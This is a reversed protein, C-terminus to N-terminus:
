QVESEAVSANWAVEVRSYKGTGSDTVIHFFRNSKWFLKQTIPQIGPKVKLIDLSTFKSTTGPKFRISLRQVIHAANRTEYTFNALKTTQDGFSSATYDKRLSDSMIDPEMFEKALQRFADRDILLTDTKGNSHTTYRYVALPTSDILAVQERLLGTYPILNDETNGAPTEPKTKKTGNCSIFAIAAM